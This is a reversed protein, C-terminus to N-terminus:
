PKGANAAAPPGLEVATDSRSGWEAWSGDYLRADRIGLTELALLLACASTGSGCLAVVPRRPDVGSAALAARLEDPPRLTGASTVLDPYPLNRSGPIHGGRVGARPDPETGAFRGPSRADVLQVAPDELIRQVAPLDLVRSPVLRATFGGRRPRIMGSEVPRGEAKWRGFGGDLVAAAAHGFTRFMWWARAASLNIGSGDYVVIRSGARVGLARMATTFSKADPLMHPRDDPASVADLDFFVAGPIHAALYEARADRGSAPLYWSADLVVVDSESLRPELWAPSVLPPLTTGPTM